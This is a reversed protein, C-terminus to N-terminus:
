RREFARELRKAALRVEESQFIRPAPSANADALATTARSLMSAHTEDGQATAELEVALRTLELATLWLSDKASSLRVQAADLSVRAVEFRAEKAEAWAQHALFLGEHRLDNLEAFANVADGLCTRASPVEGSELFATGLRGLFFAGLRREGVQHCREVAEAFFARSLELQGEELYVAGLTGLARAESVRDGRRRALTLAEDCRGLAEALERRGLHVVALQSQARVEQAEDGVDSAIELSAELHELAPSLEGTVQLALGLDGRIRGELPRDAATRVLQLAEGLDALAGELQGRQRKANAREQLGRAVWAPGAGLRRAVELGTDLLGLHSHFPGRRALLPDVAHLARLVAVASAPTGPVAGLAREYVQLLNAREVELRELTEHAAHGHVEEAWAEGASLFHEAHRAMVKAESRQEVLKEAAFERISELLGLRIQGPAEPAVFPAALSKRWLAEVVEFTDRDGPLLLVAEASELTFGGRFVSLQALAAQEAGDLLQWSWDIANWLTAHRGAESRGGLAQFRQALKTLLAQPGLLALRAAALELALPVGELTRVIGRVADVEATSHAGPFGADKARALFLAVADGDDAEAPLSLPSLGHVKEDPLRTAERSTALFKAKPAAELWARVASTAGALVQELNDLVVLCEGKAALTRGAHTLSDSATGPSLVDIALARAVAKVVDDENTASALDVWWVGGSPPATLAREAVKLALRTKGLGGFGTVTVLRAGQEFAHEVARVDRERGIFPTASPVVNSRRVGHGVFRQVEDLFPRAKELPAPAREPRTQPRPASPKGVRPSARTSPEDAIAQPPPQSLAGERAYVPFLGRLYAGVRSASHPLRRRDLLEELAKQMALGDAFRQEPKPALATLVVDELAQPYDPVVTSPRPVRCEMVARLVEADSPRHFLRRLTTLEWLVIGLAFLDSRADLAAGELQEPSLYGYKGKVVGADTKTGRRRAHAIGFDLVKTVGDFTVLVNQPSIDRHVIHLPQGQLDHKTHAYHLGAAADAVIQLAHELPVREGAQVCRASLQGLDVGHLYEMAIFYTGGDRGVDTVSVVNPHRLDAATRAEDIFMRVFDPNQAHVPLIRKLVVLKEFGELGQLRALFVEAMGGEALKKLLAYRGGVVESM